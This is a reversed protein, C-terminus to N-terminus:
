VEDRVAVGFGTRGYNNGNYLMLLEGDHSFVFPYEIMESDWGTPSVDIGADAIRLTWGDGDESTAYGIKYRSNGGGRYSFWMQYGSKADGVITPRSFAQAVGLEYPVALGRKVWRLGDTSSAGQIVHLMEDNGADWSRTSGYWM